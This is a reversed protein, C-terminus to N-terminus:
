SMPSSSRTGRSSWGSSRSGRVRGAGPWCREFFGARDLEPDPPSSFTLDDALHEEFFDRDGASFAEHFQRALKKRDAV